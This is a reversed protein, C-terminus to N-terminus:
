EHRLAEVPHLLAARLAPLISSLVAIGLAGLVIWAITWPNVITPIKYFYYISPDFLPRGTLEGLWDAIENINHVFALGLVMGVGSGVIGLSLGYGLFIGMIGARSAGLSKLIGIDRTKEVVIMLFIAFIGFGAVAIIFFLLINLIAIEMYVASLLPSQKDQWTSVMFHTSAFAKQLRNRVEAGDAGPKLKIQIQNVMGVGTTPDIMGRMQQLKDIPVFVLQSDYESMKSEYLDVVTFTKTQFKPPEGATATTLRIDDGPMLMFHDRGQEDRYGVALAMGLVVGDYQDKAPDFVVESEEARVAAFPDAPRADSSEPQPQRKEELARRATEAKAWEAWIRRYEWGAIAMQERPKADKGAQHDLTDYGGERLEFSPHKRNEPHQLYKCFASVEGQTAADVGVLQIPRHHSEGGARFTLLAPVVVTATMAEVQDGAVEMITDMKEQPDSFGNYNRSELM